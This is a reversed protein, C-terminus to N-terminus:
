IPKFWLMNTTPTSPETASVVVKYPAHESIYSYLYGDPPLTSAEVATYVKDQMESIIGQYAGQVNTMASQLLNWDASSCLYASLETTLTALEPNTPDNAKLNRYRIIKPVLDAANEPTIESKPKFTDTVDYDPPIFVSINPNDPM